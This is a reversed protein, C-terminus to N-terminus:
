INSGIKWTAGIPFVRKILLLLLFLSKRPTAAGLDHFDLPFSSFEFPMRTNVRRTVHFASERTAVGRHIGTVARLNHLIYRRPPPLLFANHTTSSTYADTCTPLTQASDLSEFSVKQVVMAVTPGKLASCSGRAESRIRGKVRKM